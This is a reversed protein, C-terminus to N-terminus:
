EVLTASASVYQKYYDTSGGGTIGGCGGSPVQYGKSNTIIVMRGNDMVLEGYENCYQQGPSCGGINDAKADGEPCEEPDESADGPNCGAEEDECSCLVKIDECDCNYQGICFYETTTSGPIAIINPEVYFTQNLVGNQHQYWRWQGYELTTPNGDVDTLFEPQGLAFYYSQMIAVQDSGHGMSSNGIIIKGRTTDGFTEPNAILFDQKEVVDEFTEILRYVDGFYPNGSYYYNAGSIPTYGAGSDWTRTFNYPFTTNTKTSGNTDSKIRTVISEGIYWGYKQNTTANTIPSDWSGKTATVTVGNSYPYSGKFLTLAWNTKLEFYRKYTVDSYRLRKIYNTGRNETKASSRRLKASEYPVKEFNPESWTPTIIRDSPILHYKGAFISDPNDVVMIYYDFLQNENAIEKDEYGLPPYVKSEIGSINKPVSYVSTMYMESGLYFPEHETSGPYSVEGDWLVFVATSGDIAAQVRYGEFDIRWEMDKYSVTAHCNSTDSNLPTGIAAMLNPVEEKYKNDFCEQKIYEDTLTETAKEEAMDNAYDDCNDAGYNECATKYGDKVNDVINNFLEERCEEWWKDKEEDFESTPDTLDMPPEPEPAPPPACDVGEECATEVVQNDASAEDAEHEDKEVPGGIDVEDIIDEEITTGGTVTTSSGTLVCCQEGNWYQGDPCEAYVNTSYIGLSIVFIGTMLAIKKIRKWM